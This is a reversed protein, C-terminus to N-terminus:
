VDYRSSLVACIHLGPFLIKLDKVWLLADQMLEVQAVLSDLMSKAMVVFSEEEFRVCRSESPVWSDFDHMELGLSYLAKMGQIFRWYLHDFLDCSTVSFESFINAHSEVVVNGVVDGYEHRADSDIDVLSTMEIGDM